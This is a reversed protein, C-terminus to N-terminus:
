LSKEARIYLSGAIEAIIAIHEMITCLPKIIPILFKPIGPHLFDFPTIQVKVFGHQEITKKLSWRFSATEDPSNGARKRLAPM